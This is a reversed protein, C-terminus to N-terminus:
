LKVYSGTAQPPLSSVAEKTPTCMAPSMTITMAPRITYKVGTTITIPATNTSLKPQLFVIGVLFALAILTRVPFNM